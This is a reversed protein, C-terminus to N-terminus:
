AYVEGQMAASIRCCFSGFTEFAVDFNPLVTVDVGLISIIAKAVDQAVLSTGFILKVADNAM